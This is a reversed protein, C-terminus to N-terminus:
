LVKAKLLSKIRVKFQLWLVKAIIFKEKSVTQLSVNGKNATIHFNGDDQMYVSVMLENM